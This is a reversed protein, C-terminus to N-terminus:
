QSIHMGAYCQVQLEFSSYLPTFSPKSLSQLHLLANGNHFQYPKKSFLTIDKLIVFFIIVM